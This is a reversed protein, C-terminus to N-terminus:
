SFLREHNTLLVNICKNLMLVGAIGLICKWKYEANYFDNNRGVPDDQIASCHDAPVSILKVFKQCRTEHPVGVGFPFPGNVHQIERIGVPIVSQPVFNWPATM